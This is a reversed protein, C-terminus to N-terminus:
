LPIGAILITMKSAKQKSNQNKSPLNACSIFLNIFVKFYIKWYMCDSFSAICVFVCFFVKCYLVQVLFGSPEESVPAFSNHSIHKQFLTGARSGRVLTESIDWANQQTRASRRPFPILDNLKEFILKIM